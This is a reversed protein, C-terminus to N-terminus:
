PTFAFVCVCVCVPLRSWKSEVGRREYAKPIAVSGSDWLLSKEGAELVSECEDWSYPLAAPLYINRNGLCFVELTVLAFNLVPVVFFANVTCSLCDLCENVIFCPDLSFWEQKVLSNDKKIKKRKIFISYKFSNGIWKNSRHTMPAVQFRYHAGKPKLTYTNGCTEQGWCSPVLEEHEVRIVVLVAQSKLTLFKPNSPHNPLYEWCIQSIKDKKTVAEGLLVEERSHGHSAFVM